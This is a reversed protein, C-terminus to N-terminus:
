VFAQKAICDQVYGRGYAAWAGWGQKDWVLKAVAINTAGDLFAAYSIGESGLWANDAWNPMLQFLGRAGSANTVGAKGRSEGYLVCMAINVHGGSWQGQVAGLWQQTNAIDDPCPNFVVDKYGNGCTSPPQPAPAPDPTPAPAPKPKPKAAAAAKAKRDAEAQALAALRATEADRTEEETLELARIGDLITEPPETMTGGATQVLLVIIAIVTNM